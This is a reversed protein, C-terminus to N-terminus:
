IHWEHDKPSPYVSLSKIGQTSKAQVTTCYTGSRFKVTNSNDDQWVVYINDDSLAVDAKDVNNIAVTDFVAPFGSSIDNTFLAVIQNEGSVVQKWVIAATQGSHDIRVFNQQQLGQINGTLLNGTSSLVNVLSSRNFYVRPIGSAGNMSVTYLTDGIIVGDPGSSPCYTLNWNQQDVNMGASFSSGGDASVGVWTDRIDSDNDRYMVAVKNGSAIIGGPCCDCVISTPSSWGSALVDTSFTNGYDVSRSAVWRPNALGPDFKMFGVVPRGSDDATVVAFSSLSDAINEVQVPSNFTLGGDWSSVIWIHSTILNQPVQKYVCYVTDGYSAIDPGMWSFTAVDIDSPNLQVPAQFNNGNWRSFYLKGADGWIVLPNGARDTVIRPFYNGFANSAVDIAPNWNVQGTLTTFNLFASIAVLLLKTKM